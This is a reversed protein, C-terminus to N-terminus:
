DGARWGEKAEGHLQRLLMPILNKDLAKVDLCLDFMLCDPSANLFLKVM